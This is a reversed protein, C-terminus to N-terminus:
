VEVSPPDSKNWNTQKTWSLFLFLFSKQNETICTCFIEYCRVNLSNLVAALNHLYIHTDDVYCHFVFAFLYFIFHFGFNLRATCWLYQAFQSSIFLWMAVDPMFYFSSIHYLRCYLTHQLDHKITKKLYDELIILHESFSVGVFVHATPGATFSVTHLSETASGWWYIEKSWCFNQGQHLSYTFSTRFSVHNLSSEEEVSLCSFRCGHKHVWTERSQGEQVAPLHRHHRGAASQDEGCQLSFAWRWASCWWM